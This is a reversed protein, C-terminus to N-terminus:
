YFDQTPVPTGVMGTAVIDPPISAVKTQEPAIRVLIILESNSDPKVSKFLLEIITQFGSFTMVITKLFNILKGPIAIIFIITRLHLRPCFSGIEYSSSYRTLHLPKTNEEKM